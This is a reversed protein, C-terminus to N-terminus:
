GPVPPLALLAVSIAKAFSMVSGGIRAAIALWYFGPDDARTALYTTHVMVEGSILAWVALVACAIGVMVYLPLLPNVTDGLM